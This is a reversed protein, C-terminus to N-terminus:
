NRGRRRPLPIEIAPAGGQPAVGGPRIEFTAGSPLRGGQGGFEGRQLMNFFEVERRMRDRAEDSVQPQQGSDGTRSSTGGRQDGSRQDGSRQEGTRQSTTSAAATASTNATVKGGTISVVAKHVLDPSANKITVVRMTEAEDSGARDLQEVLLKIEQFLPEAASVVLSNSRRDVGV